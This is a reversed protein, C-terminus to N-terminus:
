LSNLSHSETSCVTFVISIIIGGTFFPLILALYMAGWSLVQVTTSGSFHMDFPLFNLIPLLLLQSLAYFLALKPLLKLLKDKNAKMLYVYIGGLGLAFMAATIVMYGMLPNLIVDFTRYKMRNVTLQRIM